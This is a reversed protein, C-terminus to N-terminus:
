NREGALNEDNEEKKLCLRAIEPLRTREIKAMANRPIRDVALFRVPVFIHQLRAECHERIQDNKFPQDSKVLAYAREVGLDNAMTTVAADAIGPFARLVEEVFEANIKDGGVNLRTEQRGTIVLLGEDTVYGFDGPYFWGDRFVRASTEPDGYYGSVAHETRVRVIGEARKPLLQGAQDVVEAEADPLLHGVAGPIDITMRADATAVTGVETAGYSSILHHSMRAWSREALRRTLQGGGVLIHDINCHLSPNAEFFKLYEGLGHPSTAMSQIGFLNLSQLTSGGDAGFVMVMGGRMLMRIVYRFGQSSSLGVDCFLRSSFSWRDGRCYDLRANKAILQSHTFAMAKPIGTSGSTLIIRCIEDGTITATTKIPDARGLLWEYHARIVRQVNAFPLEADTIAAEAGLEKPLTTDRCSVTTIGIRTLALILVVHFIKDKVLIGVIQGQRFELPRIARTVNHIISELQAYTVLDFSTGPACLAPQEANIRCQYLIPDVINMITSGCAKISRRSAM